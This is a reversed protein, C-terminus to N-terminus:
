LGSWIAILVIALGALPLAFERALGVSLGAVLALRRM